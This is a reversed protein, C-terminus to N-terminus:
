RAGPSPVVQAIGAASARPGQTGVLVSTVDYMGEPLDRFEFVNVPASNNGDIQIESSRYFTPSEAVVRLFRNDADPQFTVRVVVRAPARTVLPSVKMKMLGDGAIVASAPSYLLFGVFLALYRPLRM